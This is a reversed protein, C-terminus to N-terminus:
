SFLIVKDERTIDDQQFLLNELDDGAMLPRVANLHRIKKRQKKIRNGATEDRKKM